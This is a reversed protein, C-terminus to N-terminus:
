LPKMGSDKDTSGDSRKYIQELKINRLVRERVGQGERLLEVTTPVM